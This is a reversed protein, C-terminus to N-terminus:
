ANCEDINISLLREMVAIVPLLIINGSEAPSAPASQLSRRATNRDNINKM